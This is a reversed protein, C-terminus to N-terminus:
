MIEYPLKLNKKAELEASNYEGIKFTGISEPNVAVEDNHVTKIDEPKFEKINTTWKDQMLEHQYEKLRVSGFKRKTLVSLLKLSKLTVVVSSMHELFPVVILSNINKTTAWAFVQTVNKDLKLSQIISAIASPSHDLSLKSIPPLVVATKSTIETNGDFKEFPSNQEELLKNLISESKREIGINDVFLVFKHSGVIHNSLM